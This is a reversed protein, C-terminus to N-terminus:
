RVDESPHVATLKRAALVSHLESVRGQPDVEIRVVSLPAEHPGTSRWWLVLAPQGNMTRLSIGDPVGRIEATRLLFTAVRRAGVVPVRAAHFQGGGDNLLLVEDALLREVQEPDRSLLAGM